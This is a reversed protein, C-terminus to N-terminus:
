LGPTRKWRGLAVALIVLVLVAWLALSGFEVMRPAKRAAVYLASFTFAAVPFTMSRLFLM